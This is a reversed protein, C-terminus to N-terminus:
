TADDGEFYLYQRVGTADLQATVQVQYGMVDNHVLANKGQIVSVALPIVVRARKGKFVTDFVVITDEPEQAKDVIALETNQGVAPPTFTINAAGHLYEAVAEAMVEVLTFDYREISKNEILTAIIDGGWATIDTTSAAEGAPAVGDASVYGLRVYAPDLTELSTSADTPLATGLPAIAIGGAVDPSAAVVNTANQAM